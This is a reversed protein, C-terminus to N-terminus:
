FPEPGIHGVLRTAERPQPRKYCDSWALTRYCYSQEGVVQRPALWTDRLVREETWGHEIRFPTDGACGSVLVGVLSIVAIRM